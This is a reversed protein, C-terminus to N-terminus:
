KKLAERATERIVSYQDTQVGNTNAAQEIFELAKKLRENEVELDRIRHKAAPLMNSSEDEKKITTFGCSCRGFTPCVYWELKGGCKPCKDTSM